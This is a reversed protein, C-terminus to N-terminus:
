IYVWHILIFTCTQIDMQNNHIYIDAEFGEAGREQSAALIFIFQTFASCRWIVKRRLGWVKAGVM